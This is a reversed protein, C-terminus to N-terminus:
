VGSIWLRRLVHFYAYTIRTRSRSGVCQFVKILSIILDQINSPTSAIM